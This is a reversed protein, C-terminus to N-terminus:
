SGKKSHTSHWKKVAAKGQKINKAGALKTLNYEGGKGGPHKVVVDVEHVTGDAKIRNSPKRKKSVPM